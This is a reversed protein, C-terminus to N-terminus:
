VRRRRRQMLALGAMGLGLLLLSGPEPNDQTPPEQPDETPSFFGSGSGTALGQVRLAFTFPGPGGGPPPASLADVISALSTNTITWTLTDNDVLADSTNIDILWDFSGDGDAKFANSGFLGEADAGSTGGFGVIASPGPTQVTGLNYPDQNGYLGTIKEAGELDAQLVFDVGGTANATVTLTACSTNACTGGSGSFESSFTFVDAAAPLSIFGCLLPAAAVVKKWSM